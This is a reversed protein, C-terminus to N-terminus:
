QPGREEFQNTLFMIHNVLINKLVNLFRNLNDGLRLESSGFTSKQRIM